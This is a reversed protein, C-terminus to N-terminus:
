SERVCVSSSALHRITEGCIPIDIVDFPHDIHVGIYVPSGKILLPVVVIGTNVTKKWHRLNGEFLEDIVELLMKSAEFNGLKQCASCYSFEHHGLSLCM